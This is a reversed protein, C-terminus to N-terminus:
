LPKTQLAQILEGGRVQLILTLVIHHKCLDSTVLGFLFGLTHPAMCIYTYTHLLMFAAEKIGRGGGGGGGWAFYFVLSFM